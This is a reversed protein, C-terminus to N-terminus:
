RSIEELGIQEADKRNIALMTDRSYILLPHKKENQIVEIVSGPTLGISTIRSQFHANGGISKIKGVSGKRLKTLIEM